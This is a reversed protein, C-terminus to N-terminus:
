LLKIWHRMEKQITRSGEWGRGGLLCIQVGARSETRHLNQQFRFLSATHGTFPCPQCKEEPFHATLGLNFFIYERLPALGLACCKEDCKRTINALYKGDGHAFTCVSWKWTNLLGRRVQKGHEPGNLCTKLPVSSGKRPRHGLVGWFTDCRQHSSVQACLMRRDQEEHKYSAVQMHPGSPHWSSGSNACSLTLAAIPAVLYRCWSIKMLRHATRFSGAYLSIGM